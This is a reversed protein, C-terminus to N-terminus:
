FTDRLLICLKSIVENYKTNSCWATAQLLVGGNM